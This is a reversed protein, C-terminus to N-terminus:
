DRIAEDIPLGGALADVPLDTARHLADVIVTRLWSERSLGRGAAVQSCLNVAKIDLRVTVFRTTPTRAFVMAFPEGILVVRWHQVRRPDDAALAADVWRALAEPDDDPPITPTVPWCM